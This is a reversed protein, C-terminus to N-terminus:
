RRVRTSHQRKICLSIFGGAGRSGSPHAAGGPEWPMWGQPAVPGKRRPLTKDASILLCKSKTKFRNVQLIHTHICVPHPPPIASLCLSAGICVECCKRPGAVMYGPFCHFVLHSDWGWLVLSLCASAWDRVPGLSGTWHWSRVLFVSLVRDRPGSMEKCAHSSHCPGLCGVALSGQHAWHPTFAGRKARKGYWHWGSDKDWSVRFAEVIGPSVAGRSWGLPQAYGIFRLCPCPVSHLSLNWFLCAREVRKCNKKNKGLKGGVAGCYFNLAQSVFMELTCAAILLFLWGEEIEWSVSTLQKVEVSCVFFVWFTIVVPVASSVVPGHAGQSRKKLLISLFAVHSIGHWSPSALSLTCPALARTPPAPRLPPPPQWLFQKWGLILLFLYDVRCYLFSLRAAYLSGLSRRCGTALAAAPCHSAM